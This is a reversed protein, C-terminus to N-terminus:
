LLYDISGSRIIMSQVKSIEANVEPTSIANTDELLNRMSNSMLLPENVPFIKRNRYLFSPWKMAVKNNAFLIANTNNPILAALNSFGTICDHPTSPSANVSRKCCGM